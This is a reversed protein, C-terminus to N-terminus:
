AARNVDEGDRANTAAIDALLELLRDLGGGCAEAPLLTVGHENPGEVGRVYRFLERPVSRGAPHCPEFIRAAAQVGRFGVAAARQPLDAGVADLGFRGSASATREM